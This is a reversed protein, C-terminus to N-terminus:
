DGSSRTRENLTKEKRIVSIGSPKIGWFILFPTGFM